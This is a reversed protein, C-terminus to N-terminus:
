QRRTAALVQDFANGRLTGPLCGIRSADAAEDDALALRVDPVWVDDAGALPGEACDGDGDGRRWLHQRPQMLTVDLEYRGPEYLTTERSGQALACRAEDLGTVSVELLGRASSPLDLAFSGEGASFERPERAPKGNLKATVRLMRVEPRVDLVHVVVAIRDSRCGALLLFAHFLLVWSRRAYM